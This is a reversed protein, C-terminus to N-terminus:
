NVYYGVPMIYLPTEDKPLRMLESMRGDHFAGVACTGLRLAEAQLYVNQASHGLEMYVYRERGREGYRESTRDFVASFIISVPADRIIAQNVAIESLEDRIDRNILKSIKHIKDDIPEYKYLGTEVRTVNGVAVYIELPYMAGASPATRLGGRLAPNEADPETIGYAAWLIQALQEISLAKDTFDRRSRRGALAEEVSVAGGATDPSPLFYVTLSLPDETSASAGERVDATFNYCGSIIIVM